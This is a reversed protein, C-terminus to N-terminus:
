KSSVKDKLVKRIDEDKIQDICQMMTDMKDNSRPQYLEKELDYLTRQLSNFENEKAALNDQMYRLFNDIHLYTRQSHDYITLYKREVTHYKYLDTCHKCKGQPDRSSPEFLIKENSYRKENLISCTRGDISVKISSHILGDAYYGPDSINNTISISYRSELDFSGEKNKIKNISNKIEEKFRECEKKKKNIEVIKNIFESTTNNSDIIKKLEALISSVNMKSISSVKQIMSNCNKMTRKYHNEEISKDAICLNQFFFKNDINVGNNGLSSLSGDDGTLYSYDTLFLFMNGIVGDIDMLKKLRRCMSKLGVDERTETSKHVLCVGYLDDIGELLNRWYQYDDMKSIDDEDTDEMDEPLDYGETDIIQLVYDEMNFTYTYTLTKEDYEENNITKKITNEKSIYVDTCYVRDDEYNTGNICNYIMNVLLSKGSKKRGVLLIKRIPLKKQPEIRKLQLKSENDTIRSSDHINDIDDSSVVAETRKPILSLPVHVISARLPHNM